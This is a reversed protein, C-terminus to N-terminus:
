TRRSTVAARGGVYIFTFLVPWVVAEVFHWYWAAQRSASIIRRPSTGPMSGASACRSSPHHRRHRPLRPLRDGHLLHRRLHQRLVLLHRPQVRLGPLDLVARRPDGHVVPGVEGVPSRWARPRPAGLHAHHRLHQAPILTNLLLLHWPDFTEIGKARGTGAPSSPAPSTSRRAPMSPPTTLLGLVLRRLVDGRLRHVPDHRPPLQAAGGAHAPGQIRGRPHHGGGRWWPTSSAPSVPSSCWCPSSATCGSCPASRQM